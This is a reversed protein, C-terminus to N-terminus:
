IFLVYKTYLYLWFLPAAFMLSDFRDLAGGHGPLLNSSDKVGAERKIKSESFDGIQGIIGTTFALMLYDWISFMDVINIKYAILAVVLAALIGAITGEWSKNPSASPFIKTKGYASGFFYAASDCLWIGLYILMMFIFGNQYPINLTGPLERLLVLGSLAFGPYIISVLGLTSQQTFPDKKILLLYIMVWLMAILLIPFTIDFRYNYLALMLAINVSILFFRIQGKPFGVLNFFENTSLILVFIMFALFMWHGIYVFYILAPIGIVSVLARTPLSNFTTM